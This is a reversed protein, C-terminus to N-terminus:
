VNTVLMLGNQVRTLLNTWLGGFILDVLAPWICVNGTCVTRMSKVIRRCIGDKRRQIPPRWHMTNRSHIVTSNNQKGTRLIKGRMEKCSRGHWLVMFINNRCWIEGHSKNRANKRYGRCFDKIRVKKPLQGCYRQKNQCERQTCGLYFMTLSHHRNQWNLTKWLYKGCRDVCM